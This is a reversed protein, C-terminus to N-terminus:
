QPVKELMKTLSQNLDCPVVFIPDGKSDNVWIDSSGKTICNRRAVYTKGLKALGHYEKVHGDVYLFGLLNKSAQKKMRVHTLVRMLELAKAGSAM